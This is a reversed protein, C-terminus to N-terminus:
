DAEKKELKSLRKLAEESDIGLKLIELVERGYETIKYHPEGCKCKENMPCKM